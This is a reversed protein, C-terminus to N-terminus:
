ELSAIRARVREAWRLVQKAEYWTLAERYAAVADRPRGAALVVDGRVEHGEGIWAAYDTTGNMTVSEDILELARDHEGRNSCVRSMAVRWTTQTAIDDEASLRRSEEAAPEAEDFRGLDCLAVAHLATMTSNFGTEGLETLHDRGARFVKEAEESRELFRHAEGLFQHENTHAESGRLETMLRGGEAFAAESDEERGLMALLSGRLDNLRAQGLPSLEILDHMDDLEAIAQEAPTPGFYLPAALNMTILRRINAPRREAGERLSLAVRRCDECRGAFFAHRALALTAEVIGDDDGLRRLEELAAEIGEVSRALSHSPDIQGLTGEVVVRARAAVSADGREEAAVIAERAAALAEPFETAEEHTMALGLLARPRNPGDAVEVARAALRQAVSVEGRERAREASRLLRATAAAGLARAREDLPGLEVRYRYAQELHHALIDEYEALRAGAARELWEAFREHLEARQEKPMAQYAADRILLHRFRFADEGAFEARDPRILEKRALALLRSPVAPRLTSPVLTAVAGSHFVKGEVAGREIVAREEADLRDLRAALLLQITPPVTVDALDAAARWVGDESRILGDDILMGLMEEVFLPNGEAADLIRARAAQPIDAPGLLQDVLTSAADGDLPELLITTASLKGGGWGPRVELLEPRAVCLLLLSADRTWDALHEILDLFAPEAWHVDDFVVVLPADKALTEFVKRVGWSAEDLASADGWGLLGAVLAVIRDADDVDGILHALKSRAAPPDDTQEIGAAQHLAEALPFFTIGEGYSLCRGRLVISPGPGGLFEQV